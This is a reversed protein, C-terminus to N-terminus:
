SGWSFGIPPSFDGLGERQARVQSLTLGQQLLNETLCSMCLLCRRAWGLPEWRLVLAAAPAILLGEVGALGELVIERVEM